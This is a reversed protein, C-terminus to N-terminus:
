KKAGSLSKRRWTVPSLVAALEPYHRLSIRDAIEQSITATGRAEWRHTIHNKKYRTITGNLRAKYNEVLGPVRSVVITKAYRGDALDDAIAALFRDLREGTKESREFEISIRLGAELTLVADPLKGPSGDRLIHDPEIRTIRVGKDALSQITRSAIWQAGIDHRIKEHNISSPRTDYEWAPVGLLLAEEVGDPTLMFLDAGQLEDCEVRKLLGQKVLRGLLNSANTSGIKMHEAIIARTAHHWLYIWELAAEVKSIGRQVPNSLGARPNKADM